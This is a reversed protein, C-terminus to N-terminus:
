NLLKKLVKYPSGPPRHRLKSEPNTWFASHARVVNSVDISAFMVATRPMEARIAPM